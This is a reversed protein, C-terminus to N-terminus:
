PTVHAYRRKNKILYVTSVDIGYEKAIIKKYRDDHFVSVAQQDTLKSLGNKCGFLVPPNKNRGKSIADRNNDATTGLFIHTPNVCWPNDCTHCAKIGDPITENLLLKFSVRHAGEVRGNLLFYGYKGTM